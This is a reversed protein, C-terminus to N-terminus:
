DHPLWGARILEAEAASWESPVVTGECRDDALELATGALRSHRVSVSGGRSLVLYTRGLSQALLFRDSVILRSAIAAGFTRPRRIALSCKFSPSGSVIENLDKPLWDKPLPRPDFVRAQPARWVVLVAAIVIVGLCLVVLATM